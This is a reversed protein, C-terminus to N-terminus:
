RIITQGMKPFYFLLKKSNYMLDFLCIDGDQMEYEKGELRLKGAEKVKLETGYEKLDNFSMVEAKIFGREFDTHILGACQPAKMGKRFTWAKVEDSGSTFYTALGLLHYTAKVLKDLGSEEIGLDQLFLAKDEKSLESLEEEIKACVVIM